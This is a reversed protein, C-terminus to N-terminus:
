HRTGRKASGGQLMGRLGAFPSSSGARKGAGPRAGCQEHRPAFPLALLLEDEILEGVKMEKSALVREAEGEAYPAADIEEQSGALVVTSDIDAPYELLELCRQCRLVLRGRIRLRLALRGAGDRVGSLTYAVTGQADALSERLREFDAIHWRGEITAANKAFEFGDIVPRASM